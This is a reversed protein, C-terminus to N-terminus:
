RRGTAATAPASTTAVSVQTDIPLSSGLRASRGCANAGYPDVAASIAPGRRIGHHQVAQRGVAALLDVGLHM